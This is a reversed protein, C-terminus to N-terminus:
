KFKTLFRKTFHKQYEIALRYTRGNMFWGDKDAFRNKKESYFGDVGLEM